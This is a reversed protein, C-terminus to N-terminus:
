LKTQTFALTMWHQPSYLNEAQNMQEVADTAPRTPSGEHYQDRHQTMEWREHLNM